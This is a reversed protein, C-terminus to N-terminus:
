PAIVGLLNPHVAISGPYPSKMTAYDVSWAVQYDLLGIPRQVQIPRLTWVLGTAPDTVVLVVEM